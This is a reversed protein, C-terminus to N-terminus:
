YNFNLDDFMIADDNINPSKNNEDDINNIDIDNMECEENDYKFFIETIYASFNSLEENEDDLLKEFIDSIGSEVLIDTEDIKVEYEGFLGFIFYLFRMKQYNDFYEFTQALQKLYEVKLVDTKLLTYGVSVFDMICLNAHIRTNKNNSNLLKFLIKWVNDLYMSKINEIGNKLVIMREVIYCFLEECKKTKQVFNGIKGIISKGMISKHLENHTSINYVIEFIDEIIENPTNNHVNHFIVNFLNSEILLKNTNVVGTSLSKIGIIGVQFLDYTDNKKEDRDLLIKMFVSFSYDILEIWEMSTDTNNWCLNFLLQMTMEVNSNKAKRIHEVIGLSIIIKSIENNISTHNTLTKLIEDNGDILSFIYDVINKKSYISIANVDNINSFLKIFREKNKENYACMLGNYDNENINVSLLKRKEKLAKERDKKIQNSLKLKNKNRVEEINLTSKFNKIGQKEYSM